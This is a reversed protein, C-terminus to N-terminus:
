LASICPSLPPRPNQCTLHKRRLSTPHHFLAPPSKHKWISDLENARYTPKRNGDGGDEATNRRRTVGLVRFLRDFFDLQARTAHRGFTMHFHSLFLERVPWHLGIFAIRAVDGDAVTVYKLIERTLTRKAQFAMGHFMGLFGLVFGKRLIAGEAMFHVVRVISIEDLASLLPFPTQLSPTVLFKRGTVSM